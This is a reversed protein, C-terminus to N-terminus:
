GYEWSKGPNGLAGDTAGDTARVERWQLMQRYCEEPYLRQNDKKIFAQMKKSRTLRKWCPENALKPLDFSVAKEGMDYKSTSVNIGRLLKLDVEYQHGQSIGKFYLRREELEVEPERVDKLPFSLYLRDPKQGWLITPIKSGVAVELLLFVLSRLM